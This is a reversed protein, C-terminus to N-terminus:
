DGTVYEPPLRIVDDSFTFVVANESAEFTHDKVGLRLLEGHLLNAIFLSWKKGFEHYFSINIGDGKPRDAQVKYNNAYKDFLAAL